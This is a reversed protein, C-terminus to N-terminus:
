TWSPASAEDSPMKGAPLAEAQQEIWATIANRDGSLHTAWLQYRLLRRHEDWWSEGIIMVSWEGGGREGGGRRRDLRCVDLAVAYDPTRISHRGRRWEVDGVRWTTAEPDPQTAAKLVQWCYLFRRDGIRNM